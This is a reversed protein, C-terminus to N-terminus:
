QDRESLCIKEITRWLDKRKHSFEMYHSHVDIKHTHLGVFPEIVGRAFAM